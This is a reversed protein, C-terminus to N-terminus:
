ANAPMRTAGAPFRHRGADLRGRGRACCARHLDRDSRVRREGALERNRATGVREDYLQKGTRAEYCSLIGNWRCLYLYDGYVLPTQMYSGDRRKSWAVFQNSERDEPLSIDGSANTRIAYIPAMLGHANTIFVLGNAVVPHCVGEWVIAGLRLVPPAGRAWARLM